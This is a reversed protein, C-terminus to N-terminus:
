GNEDGEMKVNEKIEKITRYLINKVKSESVELHKAIENIKLGFYYYLYFVKEVENGKQKVFNWVAEANLKEITELEINENSPIELVAKDDNKSYYSVREKMKHWFTYYKKIRKAAIGIIFNEPNDLEISDKKDLIKYFEIYTEQILDNVDNIKSCKCLIYKLTRDYTKNYIEEFNELSIRTSMNIEGKM